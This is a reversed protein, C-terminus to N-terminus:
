SSKDIWAKARALAGEKTSHRFQIVGIAAIYKGNGAPDPNRDTYFLTISRGRYVVTELFEDNMM